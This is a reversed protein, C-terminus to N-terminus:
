KKKQKRHTLLLKGEDERSKRIKLMEFQWIFNREVKLGSLLVLILFFSFFFFVGLFVAGVCVGLVLSIFPIFITPTHYRGKM